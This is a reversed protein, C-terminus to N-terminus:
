YEHFLTLDNERGFCRYRKGFKPTIFNDHRASEKPVPSNSKKKKKKTTSMMGNQVGGFKQHIQALFNVDREQATGMGGCDELTNLIGV